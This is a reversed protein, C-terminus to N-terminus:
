ALPLAPGRLSARRHLYLLLSLMAACSLLSLAADATFAGALGHTTYFHADFFQVYILPLNAASSLIASETAAVANAHGVTRLTIATVVTFALSQFINEGLMAIGFIAPTHPMLLLSLTFLAGVIGIGLYLRRLPLRACLVGGLLAALIGAIAVGAGALWSVQRESAHFDAGYGGLLNTLTFASSPVAFLVLVLLVERRRLMHAIARFLARFSDGALKRDPGPAPIFPFIATPLLILAGFSWACVALPLAHLLETVLVAMLGGAGINAVNICASLVPQSRAPVVSAFWGYLAAAYLSVAFFGVLVSAELLVLNDIHLFAFVLAAAGICAMLVAWTRRSFRVDLIPALLFCTPGPLILLATLAAIRDAPIHRQALLEPIAIAVLGGYFGFSANTLGILWAPAIPRPL